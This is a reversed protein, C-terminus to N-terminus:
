SSLAFPYTAKPLELSEDPSKRTLALVEGATYLELQISETSAREHFIKSIGRVRSWLFRRYGVSTYALLGTEDIARPSITYPTRRDGYYLEVCADKGVRSLRYKVPRLDTITPGMDPSNLSYVGNALPLLVEYHVAARNFARELTLYDLNKMRNFELLLRNKLEDNQRNLQILASRVPKTSLYHAHRKTKM